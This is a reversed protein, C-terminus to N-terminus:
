EEYDKINKAINFDVPNFPKCYPYDLGDFLKFKGYSEIKELYGVIYYETKYDSSFVCLVKDEIIKDWDYEHEVIVWDDAELDNRNLQYYDGNDAYEFSDDGLIISRYCYSETSRKIKGGNLLHKQIIEDCFKM